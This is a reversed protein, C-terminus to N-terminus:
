TTMCYYYYLQSTQPEELHLRVHMTGLYGMEYGFNGESRRFEGHEGDFDCYYKCRKEGFGFGIM